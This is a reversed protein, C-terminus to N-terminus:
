DRITITQSFTVSKGAKLIRAFMQKKEELFADIRPEICIVKDKGNKPSWLVLTTCPDYSITFHHSKDRVEVPQSPAPFLLAPFLPSEDFNFTKKGTRLIGGELLYGTHFGLAYPMPSTGLNKITLEQRVSMRDIRYSVTARFSFPYLQMTEKDSEWTFVGDKESFDQDRLFGHQPLVYRKERFVFGEPFNGCVPFLLPAHWEWVDPNGTWLYETKKRKDMLSIPEAGRNSVTLSLFDNEYRHNSM